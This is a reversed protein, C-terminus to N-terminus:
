GEGIVEVIFIAADMARTEVAASPRVAQEDPEEDFALADAEAGAAEAGADDAADAAGDEGVDAAGTLMASSTMAPYKL